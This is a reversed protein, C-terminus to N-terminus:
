KNFYKEFNKYYDKDNVIIVKNDNYNKCQIGFNFLTEFENSTYPTFPKMYINNSSDTAIYILYTNNSFDSTSIEFLLWDCNINDMKYDRVSHPLKIYNLINVPQRQM